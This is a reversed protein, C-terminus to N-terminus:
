ISAEPKKMSEAYVARAMRPTNYASGYDGERTVVIAGGYGSFRDRLIEVSKKVAEQAKLGRDVFDAITKAMGAKMIAEGWGTCSVACTDTAYTGAGLIPSDGIRGPQKCPTGGTSTGAVLTGEKDVAVAGVTGHKFFDEAPKNQRALGEWRKIEREIVLDRNDCLPVGQHAAFREAGEGTLFVTDCHEMVIRAARIPNKIRKVAGVAGARLSNGETIVADLEVMGDRNLFSGTGADFTPDDELCTIADEVADLASHPLAKKGRTIAETVGKLHSEVLDDPIDWAGGHVLIIPNM